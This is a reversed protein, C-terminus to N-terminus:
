KLLVSLVKLYKYIQKIQLIHYIYSPLVFFISTLIFNVFIFKSRFCTFLCYFICFPKITFLIFLIFLFTYFNLFFLFIPFLAQLISVIILHQLFLRLFMDDLFWYVSQFLFFFFHVLLMLHNNFYMFIFDGLLLTDFLIDCLCVFKIRCKISFCKIKRPFSPIITVTNFM